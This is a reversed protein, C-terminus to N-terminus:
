GASSNYTVQGDEATSREKESLHFWKCFHGTQFDDYNTRFQRGTLDAWDAHTIFVAYVVRALEEESLAWVTKSNPGAPRAPQADVGALNYEHCLLSREPWPDDYYFRKTRPDYGRLVIAHGSQGDFVFLGTGRWHLKGFGRALASILDASSISVVEM